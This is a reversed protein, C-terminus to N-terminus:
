LFTKNFHKYIIHAVFQLNWHLVPTDWYILAMIVQRSGLNLYLVFKVRWFITRTPFTDTLSLFPMAGRVSSLWAVGTYFIKM